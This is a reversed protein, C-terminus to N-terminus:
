IGNLFEQASCLPVCNTDLQSAKSHVALSFTSDELEDCCALGGGVWGWKWGGEEEVVSLEQLWWLQRRMHVRFLTQLIPDPCPGFNGMWVHLVCFSISHKLKPSPNPVKTSRVSPLLLFSEDTINAKKLQYWYSMCKFTDAIDQFALYLCASFLVFCRCEICHWWCWWCAWESATLEGVIVQEIWVHAWDSMISQLLLASLSLDLEHGTWRVRVNAKVCVDRGPSTM